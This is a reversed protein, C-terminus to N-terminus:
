SFNSIHDLERLLPLFMFHVLSVLTDPMLMSGILILIHARAYQGITALNADDPLERFRRNLWSLKISNGTIMNEPPIDGLLDQCLQLLNRSSGGTVPEGDISVELQLSVDELTITTEGLPMHFTHTNTRWRECLSTVMLHNIEVNSVKLIHAFGAADILM